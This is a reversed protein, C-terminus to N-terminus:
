LWYALTAVFRLASFFDRALKDYVRRFNKLRCFCREVVNRGEYVRKDHRIPTKCNSKGPIVAKIGQKKLYRRL